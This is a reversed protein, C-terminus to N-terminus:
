EVLERPLEIPEGETFCFILEELTACDILAARAKVTTDARLELYTPYNIPFWITTDTQGVPLGDMYVSLGEPSSSVELERFRPPEVTGSGLCAASLAIFAALIAAKRM